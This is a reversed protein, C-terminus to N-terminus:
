KYIKCFLSLLWFSKIIFILGVGVSERNGGLSVSIIDRNGGLSVGVSDKNGDLGKIFMCWVVFCLIKCLM